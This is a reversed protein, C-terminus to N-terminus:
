AIRSPRSEGVPAMGIRNWGRHQLLPLLDDIVARWDHIELDTGAMYRVFHPNKYLRRSAREYRSRDEAPVLAELPQGLFRELRELDAIQDAVKRDLEAPQLEPNLVSLRLRMLSQDRTLVFGDNKVLFTVFPRLTEAEEAGFRATVESIGAGLGHVTTLGDGEVYRAFAGLIARPDALGRPWAADIDRQQQGLKARLEPFEEPVASAFSQVDLRRNSGAPAETPTAARLYLQGGKEILL